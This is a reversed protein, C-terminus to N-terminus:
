ITKFEDLASDPIKFGLLEGYKFKVAFEHKDIFEQTIADRKKASARSGNIACQIEDAIVASDIDAHSAHGPAVGIIKIRVTM